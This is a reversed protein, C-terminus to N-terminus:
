MKTHYKKNIARTHEYLITDIEEALGEEITGRWDGVVGKRMHDSRDEEGPHRKKGHAHKATMSEFTANEIMNSIDKKSADIELFDLMGCTVEVPNASLAEYTMCHVPGSYALLAEYEKKIRNEIYDMAFARTIDTETKRGKGILNFHWSTIRDKPDRLSCIKKTHPLLSDIFDLHFTYAPTAEGVIKKTGRMKECLDSYRQLMMKYFDQRSVKKEFPVLDAFVEGYKTRYDSLPRTFADETGLELSALTNFFHMEGIRREGKPSMYPLTPFSAIEPHGDLLASVWLTGSRQMGVILFDPRINM